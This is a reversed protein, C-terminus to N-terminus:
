KVKKYISKFHNFKMTLKTAGSPFLHYQVWGKKIALIEVRDIDEEFPDDPQVRFEWKEAVKPNPILITWGDLFLFWFVGIVALFSLIAYLSSMNSM